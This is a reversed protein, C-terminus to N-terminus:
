ENNLWGDKLKQVVKAKRNKISTEIKERVMDKSVDNVMTNIGHGVKARIRKADLKRFFVMSDLSPLLKRRISFYFERSTADEPFVQGGLEDMVRTDNYVIIDETLEKDRLEQLARFIVAYIHHVEEEFAPSCSLAIEM